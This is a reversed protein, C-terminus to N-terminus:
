PLNVLIADSTYCNIYEHLLENNKLEDARFPGIAIYPLASSKSLQVSEFQLRIEEGVAFPGLSYDLHLTGASSQSELNLVLTESNMDIPIKVWEYPPCEVQFENQPEVYDIEISNPSDNYLRFAPEVLFGRECPKELPDLCSLICLTGFTFLLIIARFRM